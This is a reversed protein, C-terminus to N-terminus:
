PELTITFTIASSGVEIIAVEIVRVMKLADAVTITLTIASSVVIIAAEIIRVINLADFVECEKILYRVHMNVMIKGKCSEKKESSKCKEVTAM